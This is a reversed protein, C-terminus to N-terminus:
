IRRTSLIIQEVVSKVSPWREVVIQRISELEAQLFEYQALGTFLLEFDETRPTLRMTWCEDNLLTKIENFRNHTLLANLYATFVEPAPTLMTRHSAPSQVVAGYQRAPVSATTAARWVSHLTDIYGRDRCAEIAHLINSTTPAWDQRKPLREAQRWTKIVRDPLNHQGFADMLVEFYHPTPDLELEEMLSTIEDIRAVNLRPLDKYSSILTTLAITDPVIEKNRIEKFIFETMEVNSTLSYTQMLVTFAKLDPQLGMGTMAGWYEKVKEANGRFSHVHLLSTFTELTPRVGDILMQRYTDDCAAYDGGRIHANILVTYCHADPRVGAALMEQYYRLARRVDKISSMYDILMTYTHVSIDLKSNRMLLMMQRAADPQHHELYLQILRSCITADPEIRFSNMEHYYHLADVLNGLKCCGTIMISYAWANPPRIGRMTFHEHFIKNATPVENARVYGDLLSCAIAHNVERGTSVMHDYIGMAATIDKRKGYVNMLVGFTYDNMEGPALSSLVAELSRDIDKDLSSSAFVQITSTITKANPYIKNLAMETQIGAIADENGDKAYGDILTSYTVADPSRFSRKMLTMVRRAGRYDKEKVLRKIVSNFIFMNPKVNDSLMEDLVKDARDQMGRRRYESMLTSYTAVDARASLSGTRMDIYIKEADNLRGRSCHGRIMLNYSRTSPKLNFTAIDSNFYDVATNFNEFRLMLDLILNAMGISPRRYQKMDEYVSRAWQTATATDAGKFRYMIRFYLTFNLPPIDMSTWQAKLRSYTTWIRLINHTACAEQMIKNGADPDFEAPLSLSLEVESRAAELADDHLSDAITEYPNPHKESGPPSLFSTIALPPIHPTPSSQPGQRSQPAQRHKTPRPEPLLQRRLPTPDPSAKVALHYARCNSIRSSSSTPHNFPQHQHYLMRIMLTALPSDWTPPGAPKISALRGSKIALM